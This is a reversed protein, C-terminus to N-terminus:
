VEGKKVLITFEYLDYDHILSVNRSFNKKCYDFIFLPDAYYLNDKMCEKDSYMTLMNFSFGNVTKNNMENLTEIIYSLWQSEEHQMKVSFIGSAITYDTVIKKDLNSICIFEENSNKYLKKANAIMENSLDYGKYIYNEYNERLYESYKGYGCGVDAITFKESEIIKSLQEFRIIQSKEGNWDVGKPTAGYKEIKRTYYKEINKHVNNMSTTKM